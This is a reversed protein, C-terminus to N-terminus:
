REVRGPARHGAIPTGLARVATCLFFMSPSTALVTASHPRLASPVEVFKSPGPLQRLLKLACAHHTMVVPITSCGLKALKSALDDRSATSFTLLLISAGDVGSDVLAKCRHALTTSKGSGACARVILNRSPDTVVRLQAADLSM